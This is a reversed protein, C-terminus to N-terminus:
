GSLSPNIKKKSRPYVCDAGRLKVHFNFENIVEELHSLVHPARATTKLVIRTVPGTIVKPNKLASSLGSTPAREERTAARFRQM